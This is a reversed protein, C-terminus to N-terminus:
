FLLTKSLIQSSTILISLGQCAAATCNDFSDSTTFQFSMHLIPIGLHTSADPRQPYPSITIILVTSISAVAPFWQLLMLSLCPWPHFGSRCIFVRMDQMWLVSFALPGPCVPLGTLLDKWCGLNLSPVPKAWTGTASSPPDQNHKSSLVLRIQQLTQM